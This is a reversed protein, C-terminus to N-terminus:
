NRRNKKIKKQAKKTKGQIKIRLEGAIKNDKKINKLYTCLLTQPDKKLM